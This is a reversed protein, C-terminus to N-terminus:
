NQELMERAHRMTVESIKEGGLLKALEEARAEHELAEVRTVTRGKQQAKRVSFHVHAMRAIQPLHTISITQYSESLRKLSRGVVEAVRGSIGIDIEDFILVQVSDTRALVTKMALMIRSIEGGSAVRVLPRVAEGPNTSIHFAVRDVGAAGAEFRKGNLTVPGEESETQTVEAAFRVKPMGLHALEKQIAKSLRGAAAQRASSLRGCAASFAAQAQEIRAELEGVSADLAQSRELEDDARDRYARVAELSGGYKKKLSGLLELRETIERLREPNHEVGQGYETFFRALEEVAYRQAELEELRPKLSGDMRVAEELIRGAAALRDVIADEDQYLLAELQAAAEALREANALVSQERELREDEDPEPGASAIENVQFELLERRERLRQAEALHRAMEQRLESLEAHGAAVEGRGASLGGFGDLFGIHRDEDLLSQHEHQGHLDVLAQGIAHLSRVPIALGGAFCRSRGEAHVERRLILEDDPAEIGMEDLVALCPHGSPLRFIAEVTCRTEGTRVVDPSARTGLVLGLAGILISKGAGTEGTIINLGPGFEIEVDDILAYNIVHLRCLV